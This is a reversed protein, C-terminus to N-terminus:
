GRELMQRPELPRRGQNSNFIFKRIKKYKLM